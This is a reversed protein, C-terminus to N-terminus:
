SSERCFGEQWAPGNELMLRIWVGSRDKKFRASRLLIRDGLGSYFYFMAKIGPGMETSVLKQTAIAEIVIRDLSEEIEFDVLM